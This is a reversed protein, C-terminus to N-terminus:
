SSAFIDPATTALWARLELRPLIIPFDYFASEGGGARTTTHACFDKSIALSPARPLLQLLYAISVLPGHSYVALLRFQHSNFGLYIMEIGIKDLISAAAVAATHLRIAPPLNPM